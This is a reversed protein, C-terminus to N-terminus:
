RDVFAGDRLKGRVIATMASNDAGPDSYSLYIWGNTAYDPHVAVDLLGGQGQSWVAPVGKVAEPLLRGNEVIRLRGVKETVLMRGDPLFAVSWPTELNDAVTELRFSHRESTVVSDPLPKAFTSTTPTLVSVTRIGSTSVERVKAVDTIITSKDEVKQLPEM